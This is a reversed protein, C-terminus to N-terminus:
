ENSKNARSKELLDQYAQNGLLHRLEAEFTQILPVPRSAPRLCSAEEELLVETDEITIRGDADLDLPHLICYFPKFFWPHLNNQVAAVQLACKFDLRLFVCAIGGPQNPHATVATHVVWGSPTHQDRERLTGFWDEPTSKQFTSQELFPVIVDASALIKEKEKLDVWVGNLCCAGRCESLVCRQLRESRLLRPHIRRM